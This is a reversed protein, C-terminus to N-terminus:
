WYAETFETCSKPFYLPPPSIVFVADVLLTGFVFYVLIGYRLVTDKLHIPTSTDDMFETQIIWLAIGPATLLLLLLLLLLM